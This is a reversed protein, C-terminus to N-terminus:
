SLENLLSEGNGPVEAEVQQASFPVGLVVSLSLKREVLNDVRELPVQGVEPGKDLIQVVTVSGHCQQVVM